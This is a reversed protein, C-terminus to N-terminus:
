QKAGTFGCEHNKFEIAAQRLADGSLGHAPLLRPRSSGFGPGLEFLIKRPLSLLEGHRDHHYHHANFGLARATEINPLLDDIFFTKGGILIKDVKQGQMTM